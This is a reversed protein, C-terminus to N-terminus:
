RRCTLLRVSGERLTETCRAPLPTPRRYDIVEVRDHRSLLDDIETLGESAAYYIRAPTRVCLTAPCGDLADPGSTSGGLRWVPDASATFPAIAVAVTPEAHLRDYITRLPPATFYPTDEARYYPGLWTAQVLAPGAALALAIRPPLEAAAAGLTLAFLPLAHLAYRPRMATITAGYALLGIIAAVQWLRAVQAPDRFSRRGLWCLLLAPALGLWGPTGGFVLSLERFIAAVGAPAQRAHGIVTSPDRTVSFALFGVALAGAALSAAVDIVRAAQRRTVLLAVAADVVIPAVALYETAFALAVLLSYGIWRAHTPRRVAGWLQAHAATVLLALLGYGRALRSLHIAWPALVVLSTAVLAAVRSRRRAACYVVLVTLAGFAVFLQRARTFDLQGATLWHVLLAPLPPHLRADAAAAWGDLGGITLTVPEDSDLPVDAIGWLRLAVAVALLVVLTIQDKRDFPDTDTVPASPTDGLLRGAAVRAGHLLAASLAGIPLALWPFSTASDM